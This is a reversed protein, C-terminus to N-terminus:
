KRVNFKEVFVVFEEEPIPKSFYYGQLYDVGMGELYEKQERTEVGEAVIKMNMRKVMAVASGLVIKGKNDEAYTAMDIMSKDLKIMDLPLDMLSDINSYGTGFDDLSFRIGREYLEQMNERLRRPSNVAATETVELNIRNSSIGYEQMMGSLKESFSEQMCQVMSLNIEIYQLGKSMLENDRIFAFVKRFIIDSIPLILGSKEAIPIFEAPSIMGMEPDDLRVLAEATAINDEAVCYIPQFYMEFSKKEIARRLAGEVDTKRQLFQMDVARAYLFWKHSADLAGLYDSYSYVTEVDQADEPLRIEIIRATMDTEGSGYRWKKMFREDLSRMIEPLQGEEEIRLMIGYLESGMQYVNRSFRQDLYDAIEKLIQNATEVGMVQKLVPIDEIFIVILHNNHYNRRNFLFSKRFANPNFLGTTMDLHEEPNQINVYLILIAIALGFVDSVQAPFILRFWGPICVAVVAMCLVTKLKAPLLEKLFAGYAAIYVLYVFFLLYIVYRYDGAHYRGAQDYYFVMGTFPNTILMICPLIVPATLCIKTLLREESFTRDTLAMVYLGFVLITFLELAYFMYNNLYGAWLPIGEPYMIGLVNSIDTAAVILAMCLLTTYLRNQMSKLRKKSLYTILVATMLIISCINYALNFTNIHLM